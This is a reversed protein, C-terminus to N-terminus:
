LRVHVSRRRGVRYRHSLRHPCQHSGSIRSGKEQVEEPRLDTNGSYQGRFCAQHSDAKRFLYSMSPFSVFMDFSENWYPNLTKKIVSTTRTQEGGITAVAFPDPFGTVHDVYGKRRKSKWHGVSFMVSTFLMPRSSQLSNAQTTGRHIHLLHDYKHGKHQSEQTNIDTSSESCIM